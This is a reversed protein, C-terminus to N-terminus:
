PQTVCRIQTCHALSLSLTSIDTYRTFPILLCPRIMLTRLTMYPTLRHLHGLTNPSPTPTPPPRGEHASLFILIDYLFTPPCPADLDSERTPPLTSSKINTEQVYIPKNKGNKKKRKNLYCSPRPAEPLSSSTIRCHGTPTRPFNTYLHVQSTPPWITSASTSSRTAATRAQVVSAYLRALSAYRGTPPLPRQSRLGGEFIM